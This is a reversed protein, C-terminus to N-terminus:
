SAIHRPTTVEVVIITFVDAVRSAACSVFRSGSRATPSCAFIENPSGRVRQGLRSFSPLNPLSSPYSTPSSSSSSSAWYWRKRVKIPRSGVCMSEWRYAWWFNLLTRSLRSRSASFWPTGTLCNAHPIYGGIYKSPFKLTSGPSPRSPSICFNVDRTPASGFFAM